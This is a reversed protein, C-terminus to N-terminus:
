RQAPGAPPPGPQIAVQQVRGTAFSHEASEALKLQQTGALFLVSRLYLEWVIRWRPDAQTVYEVPLGMEAAEQWAIVQGHSQFDHILHQVISAAKTEADTTESLAFSSLWDTGLKLGHEIARRCQAVYSLDITQFALFDGPGPAPKKNVSEILEEYSQIVSLASVGMGTRSPVQPDIPGLQSTDSMWIEDAALAMMTAASKAHSPVVFRLKPRGNRFLRVIAEASDLLGGPSNILVALPADRPIPALLEALLDVDGPLVMSGPPGIIAVYSIWRYGDAELAQILPRRFEYAQSVERLIKLLTPDNAASTSVLMGGDGTSGGDIQFNRM